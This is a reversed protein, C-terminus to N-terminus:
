VIIFKDHTNYILREMCFSCSPGVDYDALVIDYIPPLFDQSTAHQQHM